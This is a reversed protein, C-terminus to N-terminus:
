SQKWIACTKLTTQRKAMILGKLPTQGMTSPPINYQNM